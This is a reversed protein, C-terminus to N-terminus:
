AQVGRALALMAARYDRPLLLPAIAARAQAPDIAIIAELTDAFHEIDRRPDAECLALGIRAIAARDLELARLVVWLREAGPDLVLDRVDGYDLGLAHGLLAIFLSLRQDGLTEVLLATLEDSQPDLAAALRSAAAEVRNSDDYAFISRQAAEALARDLSAIDDSAAVGERLAAAVWWVLRQQIAAPLDVRSGAGAVGPAKRRGEAALLAVAASAVLPDAHRSLRALLSPQDARDPTEIPLADAIVSQRVRGILDHMVEADRMLGAAILRDLATPAGSSIALALEPLAREILLRAAHARVAAEIAGVLSELTRTLGARVRDDLRGDDGLFFDEIAIGLRRDARVDAAAACALLAPATLHGGTNPDRDSISM